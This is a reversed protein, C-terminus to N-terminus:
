LEHMRPATLKRTRKKNPTGTTIPCFVDIKRNEFPDRTATLYGRTSISRTNETRISTNQRGGSVVPAPRSARCAGSARSRHRVARFRGHGNPEQCHSRLNGQTGGASAGRPGGTHLPCDQLSRVRRDHERAKRHKRCSEATRNGVPRLVRSSGTEPQGCGARRHLGEPVCLQDNSEAKEGKDSSIAQRLLEARKSVPHFMGTGFPYTWDLPLNVGSVCAASSRLVDTRWPFSGKQYAVLPFYSPKNLTTEEATSSRQRALSLDVNKTRNSGSGWTSSGAWWAPLRM